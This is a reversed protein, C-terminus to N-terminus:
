AVAAARQRPVAWLHDHVHPRSDDSRQSVEFGYDSLVERVQQITKYHEKGTQKWLFDHCCVRICSIRTKCAAIGQLAATEAGEINMKLFDIRELGREACYDDIRLSEVAHMNPLNKDGAISNAEHDDETSIYVTGASNSVAKDVVVVNQLKHLEIMRRLKAASAPHAEFAHVQGKPGVDESFVVTDTGIAAGVDFIIDGLKPTYGHKYFTSNAPGVRIPPHTTKSPRTM